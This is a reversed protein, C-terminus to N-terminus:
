KPSATSGRVILQPAETIEIHRRDGGALQEVILEAGAKGLEYLPMRVTTLAPWTHEATWADHLTTISLDEPVRIGLARCEALAGIAANLNAVFVATPHPGKAWVRRLADHGQEAGYGLRTVHHEDMQLGADALAGRFGAERDGSTEVISAGGILGIRQHGLSILHETAMRAGAANPLSVSSHVGDHISNVFVVPVSSATTLALEEARWSEAIQVVAGDVRGEGLVKAFMDGGPQMVESRGLLVLYDNAAAGDEVGRIMDIFIANALDPVTLAIVNSRALKLARGAFNPHYGLQRAAAEIRRRTEPRVRTSPASSLVRSVASM